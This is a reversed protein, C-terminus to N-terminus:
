YTLFRDFAEATGLAVDRDKGNKDLGQCVNEAIVNVLMLLQGQSAFVM